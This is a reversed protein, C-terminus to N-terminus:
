TWQEMIKKLKAKARTMKVRANISSIGLTEAIEKYNKEDLYLLVIAREVESLQKIAKYLINIQERTDADTTEEYAVVPMKETAITPTRKTKKFLTIATNLAVRYLWTSFKAEDKFTDFSNWLQLVVEQFMDQHEDETNTYSRCIKHIIGQNKEVLDAFIDQKTSM